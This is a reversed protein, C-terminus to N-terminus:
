KTPTTTTLTEIHKEVKIQLHAVYKVDKGSVTIQDLAQRILALENVTYEM